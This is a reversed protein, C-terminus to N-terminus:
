AFSAKLSSADGSINLKIEPAVTDVIEIVRNVSSSRGLKSVKYTLTYKGIKDQNLEGSTKIELNKDKAFFSSYKGTAGAEKYEEGYELVVKEDGLLQISTKITTSYIFVALIITLLIIPAGIIFYKRYKKM